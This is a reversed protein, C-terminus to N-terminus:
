PTVHESTDNHCAVSHAGVASSMGYSQPQTEEAIHERKDKKILKGKMQTWSGPLHHATIVLGLQLGYPLKCASRLWCVTHSTQRRSLWTFSWCQYFCVAVSVESHSLRSVCVCICVHILGKVGVSAMHTCLPIFCGTGSRTLSNNTNKSMQASQCEARHM